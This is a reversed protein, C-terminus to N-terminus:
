EVRVGPLDELGGQGADTLQEGLHVQTPSLGPPFSGGVLLDVQQFGDEIVDLGV